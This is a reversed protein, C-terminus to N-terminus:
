DTFMHNCSRIMGIDGLFLLYLGVHIWYSQPWLVIARWLVIADGIIFQLHSLSRPDLLCSVNIIEFLVSCIGYQLVAVNPAVNNGTWQYRTLSYGVNSIFLGTDM